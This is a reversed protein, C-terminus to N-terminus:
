RLVSGLLRMLRAWADQAPVVRTKPDQDVGLWFGHGVGPYMHISNPIGTARLAKAFEM